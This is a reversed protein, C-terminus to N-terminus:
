KVNRELKYVLLIEWHKRLMLFHKSHLLFQKKRVRAITKSIGIVRVNKPKGQLNSNDPTSQIYLHCLSFPLKLITRTSFPLTDKSLLPLYNFLQPNQQSLLRYQWAVCISCKVLIQTSVKLESDRHAELNIAYSSM